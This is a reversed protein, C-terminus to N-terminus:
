KKLNRALFEHIKEILVDNATGNTDYLLDTHGAPYLYYEVPAGTIEEQYASIACSDAPIRTDETGHIVLVPVTQHSISESAKLNLTNKGFLMTQYLWLFGYNGYSIPGITDVSMQM